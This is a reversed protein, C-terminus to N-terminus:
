RNCLINEGFTSLANIDVKIPPIYDLDSKERYLQISNDQQNAICGDAYIVKDGVTIKVGMM